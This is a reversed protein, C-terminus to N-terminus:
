EGLIQDAPTRVATKWIQLGVGGGSPWPPWTKEVVVVCRKWDIPAGCGINEYVLEPGSYEVLDEVKDVVVKARVWRPSM